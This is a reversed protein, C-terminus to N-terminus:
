AKKNGTVENIFPLSDSLRCQRGQPLSCILYDYIAGTLSSDSLLVLRPGLVKCVTVVGFLKESVVTGSM